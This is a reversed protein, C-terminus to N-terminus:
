YQVVFDSFLVDKVEAPKLAEGASVAIAKKLAIKGEPTGLGESTQMALLEIIASRARFVRV